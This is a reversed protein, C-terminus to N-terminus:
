SAVHASHESTCLNEATSGASCTGVGSNKIGGFSMNNGPVTGHNVHIMGNQSEALIRQILDSRNSFLASTLGFETGNPMQVARDFTDCELVPLVPGLIGEQGAVSEHRVDGLITPRCHRDDDPRHPAREGALTEADEGSGYDHRCAVSM